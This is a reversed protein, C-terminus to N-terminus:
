GVVSVLLHRHGIILCMFVRRATSLFIHHVLVVTEHATQRNHAAEDHHIRQERHKPTQRHAEAWKAKRSEHGNHKGADSTLDTATPELRVGSM